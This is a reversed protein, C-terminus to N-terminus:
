GTHLGWDKGIHSSGSSPVYKWMCIAEFQGGRVHNDPSFSEFLIQFNSM